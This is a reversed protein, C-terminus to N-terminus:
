RSAWLWRRAPCRVARSRCTSPPKGHATSAGAFLESKLRFMRDAQSSAPVLSAIDLGGEPRLRAHALEDAHSLLAPGPDETGPLLLGRASAFASRPLLLEAEVDGNAAVALTGLARDGGNAPLAFAIDRDGRQRDLGALESAVPRCRLRSWVEAPDGDAERGEVWPCDPLTSALAKARRAIRTGELRALQALLRELSETRAVVLTGQPLEGARPPQERCSAAVAALAIGAAVISLRLQKV